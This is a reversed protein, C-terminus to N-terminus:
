IRHDVHDNKLIHLKTGTGTAARSLMTEEINRHIAKTLKQKMDFVKKAQQKQWSNTGTIPSKKPKPANKRKNKMHIISSNGKLPKRPGQTM